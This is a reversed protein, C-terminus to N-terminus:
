QAVEQDEMIAFLEALEDDSLDSIIIYGLEEIQQNVTFPDM